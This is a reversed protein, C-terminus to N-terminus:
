DKRITPQPVMPVPNAGFRYTLGTYIPRPQALTTTQPDNIPLNGSATEAM